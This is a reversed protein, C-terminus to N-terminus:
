VSFDISIKQFNVEKWLRYNGAPLKGYLWQWDIEFKVEGNTDPIYGIEHFGYNDIVTPVDQWQGNIEKQLKFWEGYVYPEPNKDTIIVTAGSPSIDSISISVNEVPTTAFAAKRECGTFLVAVCAFVLVLLGIRKM